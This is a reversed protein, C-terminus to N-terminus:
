IQDIINRLEIGLCHLENEISTNYVKLNFTDYFDKYWVDVVKIGSEELQRKQRNDINTMYKTNHHKDQVRIAIVPKGDKTILIDITERKCRESITDKDYDILDLLKVQRKVGCNSFHKKIYKFVNDEGNGIIEGMPNVRMFHTLTLCFILM